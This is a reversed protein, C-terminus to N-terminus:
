LQQFSMSLWREVSMQYPLKDRVHVASEPRNASKSRAQCPSEQEFMEAPRSLPKASQVRRSKVDIDVIDLIEEGDLTHPPTGDDASMGGLLGIAPMASGTTILAGSPHFGCHSATDTRSELTRLCEGSAVSWIKVMEDDASSALLSGDM